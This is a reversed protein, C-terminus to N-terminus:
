PTTGSAAAPQDKFGPPRTTREINTASWIELSGDSQRISGRWTIFDGAVISKMTPPLAKALELTVRRTGNWGRILPGREDVSRQLRTAQGRM